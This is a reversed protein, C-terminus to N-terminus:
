LGKPLVKTIYAAIAKPCKEFCCEACVDGYFYNYTDQANDIVFKNNEKRENPVLIKNPSENIMKILDDETKTHDCLSIIDNKITIKQKRNNNISEISFNGVSLLYLALDLAKDSM